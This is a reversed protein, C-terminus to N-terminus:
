RILLQHFNHFNSFRYICGFRSLPNFLFTWISSLHKIATPQGGDHYTGSSAVCCLDLSHMRLSIGRFRKYLPYTWTQPFHIHNVTPCVTFINSRRGYSILRQFRSRSPHMCTERPYQLPNFSATYSTTFRCDDFSAPHAIPMAM